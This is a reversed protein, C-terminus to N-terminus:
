YKYIQKITIDKGELFDSLPILGVGCDKIGEGIPQKKDTSLGEYAPSKSLVVINRNDLGLIELEGTVQVNGNKDRHGNVKLKHSAVEKGTTDIAKIYTAMSVTSAQNAIFYLYQGDYALSCLTDGLDSYAFSYIKKKEGTEVNIAVINTEDSIAYIIGNKDICTNDDSGKIKSIGSDWGSASSYMNKFEATKTNYSMIACQEVNQHVWMRRYGSAFYYVNDNHCLVSIGASKGAEAVYDGPYNFEGLEEPVADKEMKVRMCHVKFIYDDKIAAESYDYVCYYFYSNYIAYSGNACLIQSKNQFDSLQVVTEKNNYSINYKVLYYGNEKSHEVMYLSDNYLMLEKGDCIWSFDNDLYNDRAYADCNESLHTCETRSCMPMSIDNAIDYFYLIENALYYYGKDTGEFGHVVSKNGNYNTQESGSTFENEGSNKHCGLLLVLFCCMVLMTITKIRIKKM